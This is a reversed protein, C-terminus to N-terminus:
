NSDTRIHEILEEYDYDCDNIYGPIILKTAGKDSIKKLAPHYLVQNREDSLTKTDFAIKQEVFSVDEVEIGIIM